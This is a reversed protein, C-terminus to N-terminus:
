IEWKQRKDVIIVYDWQNKNVDELKTRIKTISVVYPKCFGVFEYINKFGSTGLGNWFNVHDPANFSKEFPVTIVLRVGTLKILNSLALKYEKLHELTESCLVIDRQNNFNPKFINMYDFKLGDNNKWKVYKNIDTSLVNYGIQNLHWDIRGAGCGVNLVERKCKYLPFSDIIYIDRIDLNKM